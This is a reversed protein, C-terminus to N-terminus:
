SFTRAARFLFAFYKQAFATFYTFIGLNPLTKISLLNEVHRKQSGSIIIARNLVCSLFSEHFEEEHFEILVSNHGKHESSTRQSMGFSAM